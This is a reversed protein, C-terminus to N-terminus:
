CFRCSNQMYASSDRADVCLVQDEAQQKWEVPPLRIVQLLWKDKPVGLDEVLGYAAPVCPGLILPHLGLQVCSATYPM